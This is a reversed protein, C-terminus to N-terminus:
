AAVKRVDALRAEAILATLIEVHRAASYAAGGDRRAQDIVEEREVLVDFAQGPAPPTLGPVIRRMARDRDFDCLGIRAARVLIKPRSLKQLYGHPDTM